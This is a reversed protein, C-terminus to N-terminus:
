SEDGNLAGGDMKWAAPSQICRLGSDSVFGEGCSLPGIFLRSGRLSWRLCSRHMRLRSRIEWWCCRMARWGRMRRRWCRWVSGDMSTHCCMGCCRWMLVRCVRGEASERLDGHEFRVLRKVEPRVTWEDGSREFYRVMLRAPLGRNMALRSYRGRQAYACASRSIDTGVIQVDWSELEPFRDCIMMALSYAEQGTACGASWLRLRRVRERRRIVEPLLVEALIEFPLYDRFFSTEKITMAEAVVRHMAVPRVMAESRLMRSALEVGSRISVIRHSLRVVKGGHQQSVDSVGFFNGEAEM